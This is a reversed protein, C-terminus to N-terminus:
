LSATITSPEQEKEDEEEEGDVTFFAVCHLPIKHEENEYEIKIRLIKKEEDFSLVQATLLTDCCTPIDENCKCDYPVNTIRVWMQKKKEDPLSRYKEVFFHIDRVLILQM